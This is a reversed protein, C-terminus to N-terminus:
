CRTTPSTCWRRRARDRDRGPLQGRDRRRPVQRDRDLQAPGARGDDRAPLRVGPGLRDLRGLVDRHVDGLHLPDRPLHVDEPQRRPHGASSLRQLGSGLVFLFLLPQVLTTVIRLRDNLPLPDARPALRDQDRAARLALSRKRSASASSGPPRARRPGARHPSRHDHEDGAEATMMQMMVRNRHKSQDEEADRITRAPTPCSCTTSRRARSASRAIPIASSPSCGRCSSRAARCASPSRARPSGRRSGSGSPAARRDGRRRRRHPDHRPRHRGRGQADRARRPRRDPRPGHDRDPRVVRGRGHLAHDHLDHDGRAGQARPHLELDLPADAPRPRDDARRPVARAALADARPRDGAPPADRRLVHRRRSDKREWLGVM